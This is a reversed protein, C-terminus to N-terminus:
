LFLERKRPTGRSELIFGHLDEVVIGGRQALGAAAAVEITRRRAEHRAADLGVQHDQRAGVRGIEQQEAL